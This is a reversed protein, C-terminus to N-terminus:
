KQENEGEGRELRQIISIRTGGKLQPVRKQSMNSLVNPPSYPRTLGVNGCSITRSTGFLDQHARATNEKIHSSKLLPEIIKRTGMGTLM